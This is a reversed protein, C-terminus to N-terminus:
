NSGRNLAANLRTRIWESRSIGAARAAADYAAQESPSVNFLIQPGGSLGPGAVNPVVPAPVGADGSTVVGTAGDSVSVGGPGVVTVGDVTDHEGHRHHHVDEPHHHALVAVPM